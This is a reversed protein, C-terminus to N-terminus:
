VDLKRIMGNIHEQRSFSSQAQQAQSLSAFPGIMVRYWYTSQQNVTVIDVGFGKMVLKARMRQAETLARFSGVQISYAGSSKPMVAAVAKKPEPMVAPLVREPVPQTMALEMPEASSSVKATQIYKEQYQAELSTPKSAINQRQPEVTTVAPAPTAATNPRSLSENALLTYFELKPHTVKPASAQVDPANQMVPKSQVHASVWHSLQNVDCWSAALYGFVFTVFGLWIANLGQGQQSKTPKREFQKAM